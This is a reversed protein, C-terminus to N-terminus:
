FIGDHKLSRISAALTKFALDKSWGDALTAASEFADNQWIKCQKLMEMQMAAISPVNSLQPTTETDPM